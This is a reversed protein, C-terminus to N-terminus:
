RERPHTINLALGIGLVTNSIPKGAHSFLM